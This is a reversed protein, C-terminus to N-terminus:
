QLWQADLASGDKIDQAIKQTKPDCLATDLFFQEKSCDWIIEADVTQLRLGNSEFYRGNMYEKAIFNSAFVGGSKFDAGTLNRTKMDDDPYEGFNTYYIDVHNQLQQIGRIDANVRAKRSMSTFNPLLIAALIGMIAIVIIVEIMTFGKQDRKTNKM